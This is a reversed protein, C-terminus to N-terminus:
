REHMVKNYTQQQQQQQKRNSSNNISMGKKKM